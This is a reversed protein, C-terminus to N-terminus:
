ERGGKESQEFSSDNVLPNEKDEETIETDGSPDPVNGGGGSVNEFEPAGGSPEKAKEEPGTREQQSETM